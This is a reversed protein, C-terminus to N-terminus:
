AIGLGRGGSIPGMPANPCPGAGQANSLHAETETDPIHASHQCSWPASDQSHPSGLAQDCARM